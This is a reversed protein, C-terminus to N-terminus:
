SRCPLGAFFRTPSIVPGAAIESVVFIVLDNKAPLRSPSALRFGRNQEPRRPIARFAGDFTQDFDRPLCTTSCNRSGQGRGEVHEFLRKRSRALATSWTASPLEGRSLAGEPAQAAAMIAIPVNRRVPAQRRWRFPEVDTALSIRSRPRGLDLQIEILRFARRYRGRRGPPSVPARGDAQSLAGSSGYKHTRGGQNVRVQSTSGRRRATTSPVGPFIVAPDEISFRSSSTKERPRQHTEHRRFRHLSGAVHM